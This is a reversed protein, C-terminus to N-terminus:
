DDKGLEAAKLLEEALAREDETKRRDDSIKRLRELAEDFDLFHELDRRRLPYYTKDSQMWGRCAALLKLFGADTAHQERVWDRVGAEDGSQHVGGRQFARRCIGCHAAVQGRRWILQPVRGNRGIWWDAM